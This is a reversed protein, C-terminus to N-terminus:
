DKLNDPLYYFGQAKIKIYLPFTYESFSVKLRQHLPESAPNALPVYYPFPATFHFWLQEQLNAAEVALGLAGYTYYLLQTVRRTQNMYVLINELRKRIVELDRKIDRQMLDTDPRYWLLKGDIVESVVSSEKLSMSKELLEFLKKGLLKSMVIFYEQSAVTVGARYANALCNDAFITYGKLFYAEALHIWGWSNLSDGKLGSNLYKVADDVKGKDKLFVGYIIQLGYLSDQSSSKKRLFDELEFQTGFISLLQAKAANAWQFNPKQKLANDVLKNAQTINNSVIYHSFLNRWAAEIIFTDKKIIGQWRSEAEKKFGFMYNLVAKNNEICLRGAPDYRPPNLQSFSQVAKFMRGAILHSHAEIFQNILTNHTSGDSRVTYASDMPELIRQKVYIGNISDPIALYIPLILGEEAVNSAAISATDSAMTGRVLHIGSYCRISGLVIMLLTFIFYRLNPSYTIGAYQFVPTVWLASKQLGGLVKM